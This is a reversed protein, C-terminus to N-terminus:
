FQFYIFSKTEYAGFVLILLTLVTYISLRGFLPVKDLATRFDSKRCLFDVIFLLAIGFISVYLNQRPIGTFLEAAKDVSMFEPLGSFIKGAIYFLAGLGAIGKAIGTMNGCLPMMDEYLSRLVQHMNDFDVALVLM